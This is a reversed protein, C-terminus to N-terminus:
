KGKGENGDKGSAACNGDEYCNGCSAYSGETWLEHDVRYGARRIAEVTGLRVSFPEKSHQPAGSADEPVHHIMRGAVRQCFDAYERTYLIFAHWGVDVVNSPALKNGPFKACAGLFALAQDMVREAYEREVGKDNVIKRCLCAFLEPEILTRASVEELVATM